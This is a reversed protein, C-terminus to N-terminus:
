TGSAPTRGHGVYSPTTDAGAPTNGSLAAAPSNAHGEAGCASLNPVDASIDLRNNKSWGHLWRQKMKGAWQWGMPVGTAAPLMFADDLRWIIQDRWIARILASKL